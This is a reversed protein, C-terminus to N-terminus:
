TEKASINQTPKSESIFVAILKPHLCLEAVIFNENRPKMVAIIYAIYSKHWGLSNFKKTKFAHMQYVLYPCYVSLLLPKAGTKLISIEEM